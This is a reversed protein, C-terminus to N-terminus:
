TNKQNKHFIPRNEKGNIKKISFPVTRKEVNSICTVNLLSIFNSHMFKKNPMNYKKNQLFNRIFNGEFYFHRPPLTSLM